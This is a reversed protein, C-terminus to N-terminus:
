RIPSIEFVHYSMPKMDLFLGPRELGDGDRDYTAPGLLDRLRWTRGGLDAFPLRVLCQSRDDAYNVAILMREDGPGQWAFAVFCDCTWNGEWAAACDLLQWRGERAAPSRLVALLNDYFQEL